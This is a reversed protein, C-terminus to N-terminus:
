DRRLQGVSRSLFVSGMPSRSPEQKQELNRMVPCKSKDNGLIRRTSPTAVGPNVNTIQDPFVSTGEWEVKDVAEVM